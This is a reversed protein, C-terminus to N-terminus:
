KKWKKSIILQIIAAIPLALFMWLIGWVTAWAITMFMVFFPSLNLSKGMLYPVLLNNEVQQIIVYLIIIAIVGESWLSFSLALAPLLALIPWIFPVFEMVWAIMALSFTHNTNIWFLSLIWLGTLTIIFISSALLIQWKIWSSLINMIWPEIENVKKSITNPMYKHFAKAIDKRELTIFLAFILVMVFNFISWWISVFLWMGHWWISSLVTSVTKSISWINEKASNLVSGIDLQSAYGQIVPPLWLAKIGWSAYLDHTQNVSLSINSFLLTTQQAFIPITTAIVLFFVSIAIGYISLISVIEPIHFRKLKEVTPYMALVLLGSLFVTAILSFLTYSLYIIGITWLIIFIKRILDKESQNFM